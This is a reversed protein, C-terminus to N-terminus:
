VRPSLIEQFGLLEEFVLALGIGVFNLFFQRYTMCTSKNHLDWVVCHTYIAAQASNPLYWALYWAWLQDKYCYLSNLEIEMYYPIYQIYWFTIVEASPINLLCLNLHQVSILMRKQMMVEFVILSIQYLFGLVWGLCNSSSLLCFWVKDVIWFFILSLYTSYKMLAMLEYLQVTLQQAVNHTMGTPWFIGMIAIRSHM